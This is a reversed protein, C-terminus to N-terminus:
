PCGALVVLRWGGVAVLRWGGGVALWQETSNRHNHTKGMDQGHLLSCGGQLNMETPTVFGKRWSLGGPFLLSRGSDLTRENKLFPVPKTMGSNTSESKGLCPIGCGGGTHACLPLCPHQVRPRGWAQASGWGRAPPCHAGGVVAETCSLPRRVTTVALLGGVLRGVVLLWGSSLTEFGERAERGRLVVQLASPSVLRSPHTHGGPSMHCPGRM